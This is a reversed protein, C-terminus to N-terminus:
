KKVGKNLQRDYEAADFSGKSENILGNSDFQWIEVGSIHLKNGTGGAVSNTGTLTWHFEIGKSTTVLRDMRVIMDPFATMFGHATKAIAERGVAPAADNVSLSGNISFYAAVSDPQQSCWAKAYKEGFTKLKDQEMTSKKKTETNLTNPQHKQATNNCGLQGFVSLVVFCFRIRGYNTSQVKKM